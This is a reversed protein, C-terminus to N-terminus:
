AGLLTKHPTNRNDGVNQTSAWWSSPTQFITGGASAAAQQGLQMNFGGVSDIPDHAQSTEAAQVPTSPMEPEDGMAANRSAEDTGGSLITGGIGAIRQVTRNQPMAYNMGGTLVTAGFKAMDHSILETTAGGSSGM